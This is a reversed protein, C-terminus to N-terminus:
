PGDRRLWADIELTTAPIGYKTCFETSLGDDRSDWGGSTVAARLHNVFLKFFQSKEDSKDLLQLMTARVTMSCDYQSLGAVNFLTCLRSKSFTSTIDARDETMFRLYNMFKLEKYAGPANRVIERAVDLKLDDIQGNKTFSWVPVVKVGEISLLLAEGRAAKAEYDESSLGCHNAAQELSLMDDKQLRELARQYAAEYVEPGARHKALPDTTNARAAIAETKLDALSCAPKFIPGQTTTM